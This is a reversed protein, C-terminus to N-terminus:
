HEDFVVNRRTTNWCFRCDECRGPCYFASDPIRPDPVVAARFWAVPVGNLIATQTAEHKWGPWASWILRLNTPWGAGAARAVLAFDQKTFVLFVTGRHARAFDIMGGLFGADPIDGGVFWRFFRSPTRKREFADELQTWFKVPQMNWLMTNEAWAPIVEPYSQCGKLAYCCSKCPADPTCTVGPLMSVNMTRGIKSNGSSVHLKLICVERFPFPRNGM